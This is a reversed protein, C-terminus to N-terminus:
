VNKLFVQKYRGKPNVYLVKLREEGYQIVFTDNVETNHTLGVYSADKYKINDQTSQNLINIAIKISGKVDESLQPQGYSNVGDFTFYNYARMDRNIM